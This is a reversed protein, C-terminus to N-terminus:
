YVWFAPFSNEFLKSNSWCLTEVRICFKYKYESVLYNYVANL